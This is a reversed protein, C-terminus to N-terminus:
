VQKLRAALARALGLLVVVLPFWCPLLILVSRILALSSSPSIKQTRLLWSHEVGTHWTVFFVLSPFLRGRAVVQQAYPHLKPLQRICTHLSSRDRASLVFLQQDASLYHHDFSYRSPRSVFASLVIRSLVSTVCRCVADNYPICLLQFPYSTTTHPTM